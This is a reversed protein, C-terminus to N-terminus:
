PNVIAAGTTAAGSIADGSTKLGSSLETGFLITGGVVFGGMVALILAYEAASAGRKDSKLSRLLKMM